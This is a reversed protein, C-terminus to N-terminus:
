VSFRPCRVSWRSSRALPAYEALNMVELSTSLEIAAVEGHAALEAALARAVTVHGEGVDACLILVRLGSARQM